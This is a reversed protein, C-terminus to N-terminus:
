QTAERRIYMVLQGPGPADAPPPHRVEVELGRAAAVRAGERTERETLHSAKWQVLAGGPALALNEFAAVAEDGLIRVRDSLGENAEM